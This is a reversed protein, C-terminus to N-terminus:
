GRHVSVLAGDFPLPDTMLAAISDAAHVAFSPTALALATERESERAGHGTSVHTAGALGANRGARVDIARDGVIWSRELVVGLTDRAMLMMGPNPKRAPHDPHRYPPRADAHHPCAFVADIRANEAAMEEIIREQVEVFHAWTYYSRGIGAQNTILIVPVNAENARRVIETAGTILRVDQARHLYNVEEVVAGDRDLFLAPRGRCYTAQCLPQVWLGGGDLCRDILEAGM